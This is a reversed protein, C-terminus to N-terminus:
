RRETGQPRLRGLTRQKCKGIIGLIARTKPCSGNPFTVLFAAKASRFAAIIERAINMSSM